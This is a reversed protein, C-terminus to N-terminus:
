LKNVPGCRRVLKVTLLAVFLNEFGDAFLALGLLITLIKISNVTIFILIVGTLVTIIALLLIMWWKKIGFQKAEKATQIKFAGDLIVFIGIVINIFKIIEGPHFLLILGIIITFIGMALDFQFALGYTDNVFYDLIKIIGCVLIVFGTIYAITKDIIDPFIIFFVSSVILAISYAIYTTKAKKVSDM